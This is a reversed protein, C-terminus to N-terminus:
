QWPEPCLTPKPEQEPIMRGARCCQCGKVQDCSCVPSCLALSQRVDWSFTVAAYLTVIIKYWKYYVSITTNGPHWRKPIVKSIRSFHFKHLNRLLCFLLWYLCLLYPPKFNLCQLESNSGFLNLLIFFYFATTNIMCVAYMWSGKLLYLLCFLHLVVKLWFSLEKELKLNQKLYCLTDSANSMSAANHWRNSLVTWFMKALCKTRIVNPHM